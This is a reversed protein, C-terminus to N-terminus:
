GRQIERLGNKSTKLKNQKRKEKLTASQLGKKGTKPMKSPATIKKM